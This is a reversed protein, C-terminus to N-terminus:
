CTPRGYCCLCVCYHTPEYRVCEDFCPIFDSPCAIVHGDDKWIQETSDYSGGMPELVPTRPALSAMHLAFLGSRSHEM